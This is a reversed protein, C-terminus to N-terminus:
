FGPLRGGRMPERFRLAAPVAGGLQASAGAAGGFDGVDDGGEDGRDHVGMGVSGVRVLGAWSEGLAGAKQSSSLFRKM